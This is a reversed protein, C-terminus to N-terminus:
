FLERSIKISKARYDWIFRGLDQALKKRYKYSM